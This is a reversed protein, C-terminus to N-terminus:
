GTWRVEGRLLSAGSHTPDGDRPEDSVDLVSLDVLDITDPVAYVDDGRVPGLSVLAGTEPNLLWVEHFGDTGPLGDLDLTITRGGDDERLTATRPAVDETLPELEVSALMTPDQEGGDLDIVTGLGIGIVLAVAAAVTLPLWQLQRRPSTTAAGARGTGDFLERQVGDWLREGHERDFDDLEVRGRRALGQLRQLEPDESPRLDDRTM